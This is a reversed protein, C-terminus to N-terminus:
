DDCAAGLPLAGTYVRRDKRVIQIHDTLEEAYINVRM